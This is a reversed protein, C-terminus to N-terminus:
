EVDDKLLFLEVTKWRRAMFSISIEPKVSTMYRPVVSLQAAQNNKKKTKTKTKTKNQKTQMTKGPVTGRDAKFWM